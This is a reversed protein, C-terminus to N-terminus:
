EGRRAAAVFDQIKLNSKIGPKDEVGSSVDVGAPQVVKLLESVNDANLGGAIILRAALADPIISWDFVKGSGGAISHTAEGQSSIPTDLLLYAASPYQTAAEQISDSSTAQIAKIYPTAFSQCFDESESGHFQIMDPKVSNIIQQMDTESPDAVVVIAIIPAATPKLGDTAKSGILRRLMAAVEISIYRSSSPVQMLGIANAGAQIASRLHDESRIGCIKIILQSDRHGQGVPLHM